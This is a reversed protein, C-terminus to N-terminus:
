RGPAVYRRAAEALAPWADAHAAPVVVWERWLRGQAGPEFLQAGALALARAHDPAGLKFVMAEQTFGAFAKSNQKLCPMSFMQSAVVDPTAGLDAAIADYSARPDPTM